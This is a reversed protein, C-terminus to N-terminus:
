MPRKPALLRNFAWIGLRASVLTLVVIMVLASLLPLPQQQAGELLVTRSVEDFLLFWIALFYLATLLWVVAVGGTMLRTIEKKTLGRQQHKIFKSVSVYAGIIISLLTVLLANLAVQTQIMMFVTSALVYGIAFFGIYRGLKPQYSAAHSLHSEHTTQLHPRAPNLPSIKRSM